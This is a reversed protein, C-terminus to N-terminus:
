EQWTVTVDGTDGSSSSGGGGGGAAAAAGGAVAATGLIVWWKNKSFWSQDGAVKKVPIPVGPSSIVSPSTKTIKRKSSASLASTVNFFTLNLMLVVLFVSSVRLLFTM